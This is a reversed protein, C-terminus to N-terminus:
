IGLLLASLYCLANYSLLENCFFLSAYVIVHIVLSAKSVSLGGGLKDNVFGIIQGGLICGFGYAVMILSSIRMQDTLVMGENSLIYCYFPVLM